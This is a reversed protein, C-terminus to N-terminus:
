CRQSFCGGDIDEKLVPLVDAIPASSCGLRHRVILARPHARIIEVTDWLIVEVVRPDKGTRRALDLAEASPQVESLDVFRDEARSVIKQTIVLVDNNELGLTSNGVDFQGKASFYGAIISKLDDGAQVLPFGYLPVLQITHGNM